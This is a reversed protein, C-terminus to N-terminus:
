AISLGRIMLASLLVLVLLSLVVTVAVMAGVRRVAQLQVELGLAAMAAVTLWRSMERLVEAPM